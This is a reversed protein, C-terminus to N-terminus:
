GVLLVVLRKPGHVGLILIKEIDATRSPGTVIVFEGRLNPDGSRSAITEWVAPLHEVLQATRAVVICTPPLYCLIREQHTGCAILCSGTDALLYDAPVLGAVLDSMTRPTWGPEPWAVHDPPLEGCLERCIPRDIAGLLTSQLEEMLEALKRRADDMTTLRYVEGGVARLEKTFREAMEEIGPNTRPWVEPISPRAVPPDGALATRIRSLIADRSSM